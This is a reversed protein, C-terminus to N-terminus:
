GDCLEGKVDIVFNEGERCFGISNEEWVGWLRWCGGDYGSHYNWEMVYTKMWYWYGRYYVPFILFYRYFDTYGDSKIPKPYFRFKIGTFFWLVLRLAAYIGYGFTAIAGLGLMGCIVVPAVDKYVKM